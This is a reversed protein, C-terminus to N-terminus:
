PVQREAHYNELREGECSGAGHEMVCPSSHDLDAYEWGIDRIHAEDTGLLEIEAANV